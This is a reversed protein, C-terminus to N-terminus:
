IKTRGSHLFLYDACILYNLISCPQQMYGRFFRPYDLMPAAEAIGALHMEFRINKVQRFGSM